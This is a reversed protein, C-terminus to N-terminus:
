RPARQTGAGRPLEAGLRRLAPSDPFRRLGRALLASAHDREGVVALTRVALQYSEPTPSASLMEELVDRAELRRGQSQYLLALSARARGNGPFADVERRFEREAEAERGLRALTDGLTYRLDPLALRRADAQEAARRLPEVAAVYEGRAHHVAGEIYAPLPLGPDARQAQRASDAAEALRGQALAARALVEYSRAPARGVVARAHREAEDPRGLRLEAAAIALVADTSGPDLAVARRLADIAERDRGSRALAEGLQVWVDLMSPHDRLIDRFADIAEALRREGLSTVGARYRELARIHEKPDPRADPALSISKDAQGIYGLAQFSAREEDTV